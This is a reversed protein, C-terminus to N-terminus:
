PGFVKAAESGTAFEIVGDENGVYAFRRQREVPGEDAIRFTVYWSDTSPTWADDLTADLVNGDVGVVTGSISFAAGDFRYINFLFDVEWFDEATTGDPFTADDLTILWGSGGKFSSNTVEASPVYGAYARPALLIKLDITAGHFEAGWGLVIGTRGDAGGPAGPSASVEGQDNPLPGYTIAVTDGIQIDWLRVSVTLTVVSYGLGLTGLTGNALAVLDELAIPLPGRYTSFPKSTIQREAPSASFATQDRIVYDRGVHKDQIPDYGDQFEFTNWNGWASKSLNLKKRDRQIDNSVIQWTAVETAAALRLRNLKLAGTADVGLVYGALKLEEAIIDELAKTVYSLYSRASVVPPVAGSSLVEWSSADWDTEYLPPVFGLTSLEPTLAIIRRMLNWLSNGSGGIVENFNLCFTVDPASDATWWRYQGPGVLAFYASATATDSDGVFFSDTSAAQSDGSPRDEDQFAVVASTVNSPVRETLYIRGGRTISGRPIAGQGPPPYYYYTLEPEINPAQQPGVVPFGVIASFDSESLQPMGWGGLVSGVPGDTMGDVSVIVCYAGAGPTLEMHWGTNGDSVARLTGDMPVGVATVTDDIATNLDDCFAENTEWQGSILIPGYQTRTASPDDPVADSQVEQWQVYLGTAVSNAIQVGRPQVQGLNAGLKRKLVSAISDIQLTWEDGGDEPDSALKGQWIQTGNGQPDDGEAYAYITVRRGEWITPWDTIQPTSVGPGTGAYHSAAHSAYVGRTCDALQNSGVDKYYIAEGDVWVISGAVALDASLVDLTTAAADVDAALWTVINPERMFLQTWRGRADTITASIGNGTLRGRPIDVEYSARQGKLSLGIVRAALPLDFEESISAPRCMAADTVPEMPSGEITMRYSLRGSGSRRTTGTFVSWTM